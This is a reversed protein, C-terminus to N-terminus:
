DEEKIQVYKLTFHTATIANVLLIAELWIPGLIGFMACWSLGFWFCLAKQKKSKEDWQVSKKWFSWIEIMTEKM